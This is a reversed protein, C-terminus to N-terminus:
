IAGFNILADVVRDSRHVKAYNLPTIGGIGKTNPNANYELLSIVDETPNNKLAFMLPTEGASTAINPDAGYMLLDKAPCFYETTLITRGGILTQHNIDTTNLLIKQFIEPYVGYIKEGAAFMLPTYGKRTPINVDAKNNILFDIVDITWQYPRNDLVRTLTTGYSDIHNIDVKKENVLFDMVDIYGHLAAHTLPTMLDQVYDLKWEPHNASIKRMLNVDDTYFYGYNNM